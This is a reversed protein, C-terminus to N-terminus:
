YPLSAKAGCSVGHYDILIQVSLFPAFGHCFLETTRVLRAGFEITAYQNILSQLAGWQGDGAVDSDTIYAPLSDQAGVAM